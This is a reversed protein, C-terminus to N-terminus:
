GRARCAAVDAEDHGVGAVQLVHALGRGGVAGTSIKSSTMVPKRMACAAAHLLDLLDDGVQGSEPFDDAAAQRDAREAAPRVDHVVERRETRDVLGAGEAAVREGHGGADCRELSSSSSFGYAL